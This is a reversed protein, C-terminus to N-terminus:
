NTEYIETKIDGEKLNWGVLKAIDKIVREVSKKASEDDKFILEVVNEKFLIEGESDSPVMSDKGSWKYTAKAYKM